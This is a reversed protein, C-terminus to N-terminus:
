VRDEINQTSLLFYPYVPSLSLFKFFSLEAGRLKELHKVARRREMLKAKAGPLDAQAKRRVAEHGLRKCTEVLEKKRVELSVRCGEVREQITDDDKDTPPKDKVTRLTMICM